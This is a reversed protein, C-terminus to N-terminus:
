VGSTTSNTRYCKKTRPWPICNGTCNVSPMSSKGTMPSPTRLLHMAAMRCNRSQAASPIRPIHGRGVLRATGPRFPQANSMM